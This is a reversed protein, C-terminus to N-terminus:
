LFFLIIIFMVKNIKNVNYLQLVKQQCKFVKKIKVFCKMYIYIYAYPFIKYM